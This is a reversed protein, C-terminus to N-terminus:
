IRCVFRGRAGRGGGKTVGRREVASLNGERIGRCCRVSDEGERRAVHTAAPRTKSRAIASLQRAGRQMGATRRGLSARVGVYQMSRPCRRPLGAREGRFSKNVRRSGVKFISRGGWCNSVSLSSSLLLLSLYSNNNNGYKRYSYSYTYRNYTYKRHIAISYTYTVM